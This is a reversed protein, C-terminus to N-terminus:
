VSMSQTTSNNIIPFHLQELSNKKNFIDDNGDENVDDDDDYDNNPLMLCYVDLSVKLNALDITRTSQSDDDQNM